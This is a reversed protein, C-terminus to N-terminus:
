WLDKKHTLKVINWWEHNRSHQWRGFELVLFLATKGSRCQGWIFRCSSGLIWCLKYFFFAHLNSCRGEKGCCFFFGKWRKEEKRKKFSRLFLSTKSLPTNVRHWRPYIFLLFIDLLFCVYLFLVFKLCWISFYHTM